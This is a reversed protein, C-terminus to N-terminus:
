PSIQAMAWLAPLNRSYEDNTPSELEVELAPLGLKDKMWDEYAGTTSYAFFSGIKYTPIPKYDALAAYRVGLADSDGADNAEVIAGHSHMTMTLRPRNATTYAALAQSEPASLPTMGGDNTVVNNGLPETVQTQWNNSPFNRNLDIGSANLRTDAAYGDPNIKPIIVLTRGAPIKGPNADVNPIWQDLLNASNQENGEMNAIFLVLSPGSGFKYATLPRGQVSTGISFVTYCHSRTTYSWASDGSVGAANAVTANISVTVKACVPYSAAPVVAVLSGSISDTSAVATGNVTLSVLSSATQGAELPQSFRIALAQGSPLGFSPINNAVVAPGGSTSFNLDYPQALTSNDTGSVNSLRLDFTSKRALPQSFNVTITNGSFSSTMAVTTPSATGAKSTLTLGSLSALPKNLQLSVSTPKDYVVANQAISTQTIAAASITTLKSAMVTGVVKTDFLRVISIDYQSAYSLGLKSPDCSVNGSRVTCPSTHSNAIIAYSFTADSQSLKFSLPKTLAIPATSFSDTVVKSFEGTKIITNHSLHVFGLRIVQREDYSTNQRPSVAATSCLHTAFLSTHFLSLSAPRATRFTAAPKDHFVQPLLVLDTKCNQASTFSYSLNQPLLGYLSIGVLLVVVVGGSGLAILRRQHWVGTRTIWGALKGIKGTDIWGLSLLQARVASQYRRELRANRNTAVARVRKVQKRVSRWPRKSWM